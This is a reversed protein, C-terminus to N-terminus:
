GKIWNEEVVSPETFRVRLVHCCLPGVHEQLGRDSRSKGNAWLLTKIRDKEDLDVSFQFGPDDARM